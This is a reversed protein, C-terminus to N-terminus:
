KGLYNGVGPMGSNSYPHANRDTNHTAIYSAVAQELEEFTVYVKSGDYTVTVGSSRSIRTNFILNWTRHGNVAAPMPAYGSLAYSYGYLIETDTGVCKAYVGVETVLVEEQFEAEEVANDMKIVMGHTNAEVAFSRVVYAPEKYVVLATMAGIQDESLPKGEGIAGRTFNIEGQEAIIQTRLALGADTIFFRSWAPGSLTPM